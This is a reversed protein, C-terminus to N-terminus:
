FDYLPRLATHVGVRRWSSKLIYISTVLNIKISLINISVNFKKIQVEITNKGCSIWCLHKFRSM